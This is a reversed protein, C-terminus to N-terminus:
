SATYKEHIPSFIGIQSFKKLNTAFLNKTWVYKRCDWTTGKISKNFHWPFYVQFRLWPKLSQPAISSQNNSDTLIELPYPKMMLLYIATKETKKLKAMYLYDTVRVTLGNAM